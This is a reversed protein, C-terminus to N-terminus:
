DNVVELKGITVKVFGNDLLEKKYEHEKFDKVFVNADKMSNFLYYKTSGETAVHVPGM